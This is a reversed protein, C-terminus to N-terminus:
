ITLFDALIAGRVSGVSSHMAFVLRRETDAESDEMTRTEMLSDALPAASVSEVNFHTAHDLPALTEPVTAEVLAQTLMEQM